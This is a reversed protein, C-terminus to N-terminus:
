SFLNLNFIFSLIQTKQKFFYVHDDETMEMYYIKVLESPEFYPNNESFKFQLKFGSKESEDSIELWHARIDQLYALVPRCYFVFGFM